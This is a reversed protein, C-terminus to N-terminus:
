QAPATPITCTNQCREETCGFHATYVGLRDRRAICEASPMLDGGSYSVGNCVLVNGAGEDYETWAFEHGNGDTYVSRMTPYAKEDRASMCVSGDARYLTWGRAVIDVPKTIVLRRRDDWQVDECYNGDVDQCRSMRCPGDPLCRLIADELCESVCGVHATRMEPPPNGGDSSCGHVLALGNAMLLGVFTRVKFLVTAM